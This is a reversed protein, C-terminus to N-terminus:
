INEFDEKGTYNELGLMWIVTIGLALKQVIAFIGFLAKYLLYLQLCIFGVFM